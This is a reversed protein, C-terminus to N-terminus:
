SISNQRVCIELRVKEGDCHEQQLKKWLTRIVDYDPSDTKTM